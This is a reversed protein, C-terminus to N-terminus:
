LKNGGALAPLRHCYDLANKAKKLAGEKDEFEQPETGRYTRAAHGCITQKDDLTKPHVAAASCHWRPKIM